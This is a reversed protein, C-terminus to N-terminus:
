GRLDGVSEVLDKLRAADAHDHLRRMAAHGGAPHALVSDRHDRAAHEAGEAVIQGGTLFEQGGDSSRSVVVMDMPCAPSVSMCVRLVFRRSTEPSGSLSRTARTRAPSPAAKAAIM